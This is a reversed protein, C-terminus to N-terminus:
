SEGFTFEFNRGHCNDQFCLYSTIKNQLAICTNDGM